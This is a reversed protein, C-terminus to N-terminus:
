VTAEEKDLTHGSVRTANVCQAAHRLRTIAQTVCCVTSLRIACTMLLDWRLGRQTHSNPGVATRRPVTHGSCRRGAGGLDHHPWLHFAVEGLAVQQPPGPSEVAVIAHCVHQDTGRGVRLDIPSSGRANKLASLTACPLAIVHTGDYDIADAQVPGGAARTGGATRVGRRSVHRALGHHFGWVGRPAGPRAGAARSASTARAPPGGPLSPVGDRLPPTAKSQALTARAAQRVRVDLVQERRSCPM